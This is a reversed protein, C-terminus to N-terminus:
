IHLDYLSLLTNDPLSEILKWYEKNWVSQDKENLAVGFWGMEGKEFWEGDKVVAFPVGASEYANLIYDEKSILFEDVSHWELEKVSKLAIVAPQAHYYARSIEIKNPYAERVEDWAMPRDIDGITNIALNYIKEANQASKKRNFEFDIDKKLAQDVFGSSAEKTMIGPEGTKGKNAKFYGTWRGGLSYWDWKSKPNYTSYNHWTGDTHRRWSNDNWDKGKRQYLDEFSHFNGKTAKEVGTKPIYNYGEKQCYYEIMDNRDEISVPGTIYEPVNIHESYPALQKEPNKGIVLCTFHSM